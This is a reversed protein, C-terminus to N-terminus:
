LSSSVSSSLFLKYTPDTSILLSLSRPKKLFAELRNLPLFLFSSSFFSIDLLWVNSYFVFVIFLSMIKNTAVITVVILKACFSLLENLVSVTLTPFKTIMLFFLPAASVCVLIQCSQSLVTSTFISRRGRLFDFTLVLQHIM